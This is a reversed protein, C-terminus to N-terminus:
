PYQDRVLALVPKGEDRGDDGGEPVLHDSPLDLDPVHAGHRGPLAGVHGQDPEPLARLVGELQDLLDHLLGGARHDDEDV